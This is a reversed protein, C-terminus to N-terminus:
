IKGTKQYDKWGSGVVFGRVICEIPLPQARYVLTSRGKLMPGYDNLLSADLGMHNIDTTIVPNSVIHKLQNFWFLSIQNLVQGKCPIPSPMVVDFASIRDSTVMLLKDQDVAYIDRVKGRAVLPLPLNTELVVEREEHKMNM